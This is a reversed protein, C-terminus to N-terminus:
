TFWSMIFSIRHKSHIEVCYYHTNKSKQFVTAGWLPSVMKAPFLLSIYFHIHGHQFKKYTQHRMCSHLTYNLHLSSCVLNRSFTHKLIRIENQYQFASWLSQVSGSNCTDKTNGIFIIPLSTNFKTPIVLNTIHPLTNTIKYLKKSHLLKSNPLIIIATISQTYIM